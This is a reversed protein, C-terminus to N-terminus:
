RDHVCLDGVVGLRQGCLKAVFAREGDARHFVLDPMVLPARRFGAELQALAQQDELLQRWVPFELLPQLQQSNLNTCRLPKHGYRAFKAFADIQRKQFRAAVM